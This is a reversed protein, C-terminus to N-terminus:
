NGGFDHHCNICRKKPHEAGCGGCPTYNPPLQESRGVVGSMSLAKYRERFIALDYEWGNSGVQGNEAAEIMREALKLLEKM